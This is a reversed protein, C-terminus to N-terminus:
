NMETSADIKVEGLYHVPSYFTKDFSESPMYFIGYLVVYFYNGNDPTDSFRKVDSTSEEASPVKQPKEDYDGKGGFDFTKGNIRMPIGVTTNDITIKASYADTGYNTLRISVTQSKNDLSFEELQGGLTKEYHLPQYSYSNLLTTYANHRRSSDATITELNSKESEKISNRNYIKYYIYGKGFENANDLKSTSFTFTRLDFSSTENPPAAELYFPDDLVADVVDLGCSVTLFLLCMAFLGLFFLSKRNGSYAKKM